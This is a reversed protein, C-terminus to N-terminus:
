ETVETPYGAVGHRLRESLRVCDPCYYAKFAPGDMDAYIRTDDRYGHGCMSDCGVCFVGVKHTSQDVPQLNM